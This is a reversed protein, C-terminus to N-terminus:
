FIDCIDTKWSGLKYSQYHKMILNWKKVRRIGVNGNKAGSKAENHLYFAGLLQKPSRPETLSLEVPPAPPMPSSSFFWPGAKLKSMSFSGTGQFQMAQPNYPSINSVEETTYTPPNLIPIQNASSNIPVQLTDLLSKIDIKAIFNGSMNDIYKQVQLLATLMTFAANRDSESQSLQAGPVGQWKDSKDDIDVEVRFFRMINRRSSLPSLFLQLHQCHLLEAVIFWNIEQVQFPRGLDHHNHIKDIHKTCLRTSFDEDTNQPITSHFLATTEEQNRRPWNTPTSDCSIFYHIWWIVSKFFFSTQALIEDHRLWLNYVYISYYSINSDHFPRCHEIKTAEM